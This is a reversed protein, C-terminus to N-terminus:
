DQKIRPLIDSSADPLFRKYTGGQWYKLILAAQIRLSLLDKPPKIAM